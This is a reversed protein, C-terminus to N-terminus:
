VNQGGVSIKANVVNSSGVSVNFPATKTVAFGSATVTLVYDAPPLGDVRYDGAATSTVVRTAGTGVNTMTVTAQPVAAGTTDSIVGSVSGNQSQGLALGTALLFIATISLIRM